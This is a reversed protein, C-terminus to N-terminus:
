KAGRNNIIFRIEEKTIKGLNRISPANALFEYVTKPQQGRTQDIYNLIINKARESLLHGCSHYFDGVSMHGVSKASTEKQEIYDAFERLYDCFQKTTVDVEMVNFNTHPAVTPISGVVM